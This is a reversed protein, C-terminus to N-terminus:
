GVRKGHLSARSKNKNAKEELISELNHQVVGYEQAAVYWDLLRIFTDAIEEVIAESGHNKKYAQTIESIEEHCYNLKAMFKDDNLEGDWFGKSVATAHLDEALRNLDNM